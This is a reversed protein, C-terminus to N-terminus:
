RKKAAPPKLRPKAIFNRAQGIPIRRPNSVVTIITHHNARTLLFRTTGAFHSNEAVATTVHTDSLGQEYGWCRMIDSLRFAGQRYPRLGTPRTNPRFAWAELQQAIRQTPWWDDKRNLRLLPRRQPTDQATCADEVCRELYLQPRLHSTQPINSLIQLAAAAGVRSLAWTTRHIDLDHGAKITSVVANHVARSITYTHTLEQHFDEQAAAEEQAPLPPQPPPQTPTDIQDKASKARERSSRYLESDTPTHVQHRGKKRKKVKVSTSTALRPHMTTSATGIHMTKSAANLQKYPPQPQRARPAADASHPAEPITASVMHDGTGQPRAKQVRAPLEPKVFAYTRGPFCDSAVLMFSEVEPALQAGEPARYNVKQGEEVAHILQATAAQPGTAKGKFQGDTAPSCAKSTTTVTGANIQPTAMAPQHRDSTAISGCNHMEPRACNRCFEMNCERCKTIDDKITKCEECKHHLAAAPAPSRTKPM